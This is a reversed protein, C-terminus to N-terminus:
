WFRWSQLGGTRGTRTSKGRDVPEHTTGGAVGGGVAGGRQQRTMPGTGVPREHKHGRLIVRWAGRGSVEDRTGPATLSGGAAGRSSSGVTCLFDITQFGGFGGNAPVDFARVPVGETGSRSSSERGAADDTRVGAAAHLESLCSGPPSIGVIGGCSAARRGAGGPGGRSECDTIAQLLSSMTDM